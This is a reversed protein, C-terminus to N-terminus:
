WVCPLLIVAAPRLSPPVSRLNNVVAENDGSRHWLSIADDHYRLSLVAGCIDECNQMTEGVLALVLNEWLIDSGGKRIKLTLKGGHRNADDEWMPKIGERFLMLDVGGRVTQPRVIHSYTQWFGEATRFSSVMTIGEYWAQAAKKDKRQYWVAWPSHLPHSSAM